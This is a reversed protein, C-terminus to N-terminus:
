EADPKLLVVPKIPFDGIVVKGCIAGSVGAVHGMDGGLSFSRRGIDNIVNNELSRDLM